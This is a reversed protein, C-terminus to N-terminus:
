RLNSTGKWRQDESSLSGNGFLYRVSLGSQLGFPSIYSQQVSARMSAEVEQRPDAYVTSTPKAENTAKNVSQVNFWPSLILNDTLRWNASFVVLFANRAADSLVSTEGLTTAVDIPQFHWSVFADCFQRGIFRQKMGDTNETDYRQAEPGVACRFGVNM